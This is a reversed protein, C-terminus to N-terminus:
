SVSFSKLIARKTRMITMEPGDDASVEVMDERGQAMSKWRMQYDAIEEHSLEPKRRRVIVPDALLALVFDPTPTLIVALKLIWESLHLRFRRSDLFIDFSYRDGIVAHSKVLLPRVRFLYGWWFSLIHWILFVLSAPSSRLPLGRPDVAVSKEPIESHVHVPKWHFQYVDRGGCWTKCWPVIEKLVTSKGVGDAGEIVIFRGQPRFFKKAARGGCRLLGHMLRFPRLLGYRICAGLIADQRVDRSPVWKTKSLSDFARAGSSGLHMQFHGRLEERGGSFEEAQMRHKSRIKGHYVLRTLVNIFIEDAGNPIYVLGNWRRDALISEASAYEVFHWELRDFIDIHLTQTTALHAFYLSLPSFDGRGMFSWGLNATESVLMKAVRKRSGSPVLLDVDNGVRDPLGEYNRLYVWEVRNSSLKQLLSLVVTGVMEVREMADHTQVPSNM